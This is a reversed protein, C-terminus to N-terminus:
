RVGAFLNESGRKLWLFVEGDQMIWRYEPKRLLDYLARPDTRLLRDLRQVTQASAEVGNRRPIGPILQASVQTDAPVVSLAYIKLNNLVLQADASLPQSRQSRLAILLRARAFVAFTPDDALEKLQRDARAEELIPPLIATAGALLDLAQDPNDDELQSRADAYMRRALQSTETETALRYATVSRLLDEITQGNSASAVKGAQITTGVVDGQQFESKEVITVLVIALGALLFVLGPSSTAIRLKKSAVEGDALFKGTIGQELLSKGILCLAIAAALYGLDLIVTFLMHQIM